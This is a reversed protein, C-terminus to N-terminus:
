EAKVPAGNEDCEVAYKFFIDDDLKFLKEFTEVSVIAALGCRKFVAKNLKTESDFRETFVIEKEEYTHTEKNIQAVIVRTGKVTRQM